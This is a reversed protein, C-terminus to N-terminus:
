QTDTDLEHRHSKKLTKDLWKVSDHKEVYLVSCGKWKDKSKCDRLLDWKQMESSSHSYILVLVNQSTWLRVIECCIDNRFWQTFIEVSACKWESLTTEFGNVYCHYVILVANIWMKRTKKEAVWLKGYTLM